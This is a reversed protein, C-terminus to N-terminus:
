LERQALDGQARGYELAKLWSCVVEVRNATSIYTKETARVFGPHLEALKLSDANNIEVTREKTCGGANGFKQDVVFSFNVLNPFGKTLLQLCVDMDEHTSIRGHVAERLVTPVHYGLVYMMRKGEQWGGRQAADGIGSGRASFGAHPVEESLLEAMESFAREVDVPEAKRFKATDDSRRVAFRLDDDLMVMKEIGTQSAQELIWHRKASIGFNDDPQVLVSVAPHNQKHWFAETSPCVITVGHHMARPINQVTLQSKIRGKTPIYIRM